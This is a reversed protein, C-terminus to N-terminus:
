RIGIAYATVSAPSPDKHDKGAALWSMGQPYSATLLNGAGEWNDFAGGGSLIWGPPLAVHATPHPAVVGTASVVIRQLALGTRSRMGIAYATIQASDAIDHDKSRVEWSKDSNPFSATLINGVGSGYDVFAGGGTMTYNGPLVAIAQPHPAPNSTESKIVVDWENNPDYLAIAFATITSPSPFEHDKGAAFWSNLGKPYSATLLNGQGSWNDIAGGGIIKFNSPVSVEVSPHPASGSTATFLQVSLTM